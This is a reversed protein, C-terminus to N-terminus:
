SKVKKKENKSESELPKEDLQFILDSKGKNKEVIQIIIQDKTSKFSAKEVEYLLPMFGGSSGSDTKAVKLIRKAQYYEIYYSEKQDDQNIKTFAVRRKSASSAVPYVIEADRHMFRDLQVYAYALNNVHQNQSANAQKISLLLNQLIILILIVIFVSFIAEALMFGRM